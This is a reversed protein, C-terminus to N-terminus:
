DFVTGLSVVQRLGGTQFRLNEALNIRVDFQDGTLASYKVHVCVSLEHIRFTSLVVLEWVFFAKNAFKLCHFCLSHLALAALLTFRGQVDVIHLFPARDVDHM